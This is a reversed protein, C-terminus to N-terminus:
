RQRRLTYSIPKSVTSDKGTLKIAITSDSLATYSITTPFDHEDNQFVCKRKEIKVAAFSIPMGNNIRVTYVPAKNYDSLFLQEKFLTDSKLISYANGEFRHKSWHWNEIRTTEGDKGKWKGGLWRLQDRFQNSSSQCSILLITFGLLYFKSLLQNM